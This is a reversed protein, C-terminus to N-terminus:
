QEFTQTLVGLRIKVRVIDDEVVMQIRGKDFNIHEFEVGSREGLKTALVPSMEMATLASQFAQNVLMGCIDLKNHRLGHQANRGPAQANKGLEEIDKHLDQLVEKLLTVQGGEQDEYSELVKKEPMVECDFALGRGPSFRVRGSDDPSRTIEEDVVFFYKRRAKMRYEDFAVMSFWTKYGNKGEGLAAVVSDGQSLLDHKAAQFMPLVDLTISKNLTTRSYAAFLQQEYPPEEKELGIYRSIGSCGCLGWFIILGFLCLYPSNGQLKKRKIKTITV